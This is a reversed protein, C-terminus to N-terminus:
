NDWGVGPKAGAELAAKAQEPTLRNDGDAYPELLVCREGEEPVTIGWYTNTWRPLLNGSVDYMVLRVTHPGPALRAAHVFAKGPLTTWHRIDGTVDWYGAVSGGIPAYSLIEKLVAKGVQAAEKEGIRDQTAAQDWLDLVEQAPGADHGDVYVRVQRPWAPLRGIATQSGHLGTLYKYPCRGLEIVLVANAQDQYGKTFFEARDRTALLVPSSAAASALKAPAKDATGAQEALNAADAVVREPRKPNHFTQYAWAEGEARRKLGKAAAKQDDALERAADKEKRATRAAAKRYAIAANDADGLRAYAKALWYYALGFDEGYSIPTDKNVVAEADASVARSFLIRATNYDGGVYAIQGLYVMLMVKEYTEGRYYKFRESSLAAATNDRLVELQEFAEMLRPKARAYSGMLVALRGFEMRQLVYNNDKPDAPLAKEMADLPNVWGPERQAQPECGALALVGAGVILGILGRRRDM